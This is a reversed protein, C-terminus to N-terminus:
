GLHIKKRDSSTSNLTVVQNSWVYSKWLSFNFWIWVYFLNRVFFSKKNGLGFNGRKKPRMIQIFSLWKVEIVDSHRWETKGISGQIKIQLLGLYCFCSFLFLFNKHCLVLVSFHKLQINLRITVINASRIRGDFPLKQWLISWKDVVNDVIVVNSSTCFTRPLDSSWKFLTRKEWTGCAVPVTM